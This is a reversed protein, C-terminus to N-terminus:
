SIRGEGILFNATRAPKFGFQFPITDSLQPDNDTNIVNVFSTGTQATGEGEYEELVKTVEKSVERRTDDTVTLDGIIVDDGWETIRRQVEDLLGVIRPESFFAYPKGATTKSIFTTVGQSVALEANANSVRKLMTVGLDRGVVLDSASPGTAGVLHLGGLLANTLASKRGRAALIGAIRPALQATSLDKNLVDDHWTGVGFRIHHEDRLTGSNLETQVASLAEGAAGGTVMRFPRMVDAQAKMWTVLQAKITTDTLNYPALIGFNKFELAAQAAAWEAATLTAGDDGGALSAGATPSLAVGTIVQTATLWRSPRTNILSVLAAIDTKVYSYTELTVGDLMVRLRDNATIVPDQEIAVSLRNGRTGKYRATLTIAAAPTTNNRSITAAAASSTAMRPTYIGGAGGGGPVNMGLFAEVAATRGPTDSNGYVNEWETLNTYLATGDADTILPGWDHTMPVAVVENTTPPIRTVEVGVWKIITSPLDPKVIQTSAM